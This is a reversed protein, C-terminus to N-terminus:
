TWSMQPPVTSCLLSHNGSFSVSKSHKGFHWFHIKDKICWSSRLFGGMVLKQHFCSVVFCSLSLALSEDTTKALFNSEVKLFSMVGSSVLTATSLRLAPLAESQMPTTASAKLSRSADSVLMSVSKHLARASPNAKTSSIQVRMAVWRIRFLTANCM